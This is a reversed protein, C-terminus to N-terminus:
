YGTCLQFHMPDKRGTFDGGYAFGFRSFIEIISDDFRKSSGLPYLAPELDIAIGWAHASLRTGGRQPRNNYIGGYNRCRDEMGAASIATLVAIFNNKALRHCRSKGVREGNYLLPYPLDFLVINEREFGQMAPDGFFLVIEDLGHPSRKLVPMDSYRKARAGAMVVGAMAEADEIRALRLAAFPSTSWGWSKSEVCLYEPASEPGREVLWVPDSM